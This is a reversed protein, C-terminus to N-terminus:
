ITNHKIQVKDPIFLSITYTEVKKRLVNADTSEPM